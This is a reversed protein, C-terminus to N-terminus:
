CRFTGVWASVLLGGCLLGFLPHLVLWKTRESVPLGSDFEGPRIALGQYPKRRTYAIVLAVIDYVLPGVFMLFMLFIGYLAGPRESTVRLAWGSSCLPSATLEVAAWFLLGTLVATFAAKRVMVKKL